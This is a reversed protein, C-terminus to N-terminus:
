KSSDPNAESVSDNQSQNPNSEQITKIPTPPLAEVKKEIVQAQHKELLAKFGIEVKTLDKSIQSEDVPLQIQQRTTGFLTSLDVLPSLYRTQYETKAICFREEVNSVVVKGWIRKTTGLSEKTDPDIFPGLESYIWFIDNKSVGDKYGRNIVVTTKDLIAAIKGEIKNM